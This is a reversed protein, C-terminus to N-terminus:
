GRKGQQKLYNVVGDAIAMAYKQRGDASEMIAADASNRMNGMEVLVAPFQALNLGALDARGFLGATGLYDSESFGASVMADRMTHALNIAPGSQVEYVPPASYNVHFGHGWAPGGDAHVSVIADPHVSNAMAARQDVCPGVGSDSTRSLATHVGLGELIGQIRQVVDWNLAHEPYGDDSSTGSTQCDKTGGRGNPVQQTLTSDNVGNHGPDLFVTAGAVGQDDASAPVAATGVLLVALASALQFRTRLSRMARLM